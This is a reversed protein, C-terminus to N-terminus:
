IHRPFSVAFDEHPLNSLYIALSLLQMFYLLLFFLWIPLPIQQLWRNLSFFLLSYISVRCHGSSPVFWPLTVSVQRNSTKGCVPKEGNNFQNTLRPRYFYCSKVQCNVYKGPQFLIFGLFMDIRVNRM